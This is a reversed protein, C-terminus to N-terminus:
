GDIWRDWMPHATLASGARQHQGRVPRYEIGGRRSFPRPFRRRRPLRVSEPALGDSDPGARHGRSARQPDTITYLYWALVPLMIYLTLMQMVVVGSSGRGRRGASSAGKLRRPFPRVDLRTPPATRQHEPIPSTESRTKGEPGPRSTRSTTGAGGLVAKRDCSLWDDLLTAYVRRFDFHYKLDDADHDALSPHTASSAGTSRHGPWSCARAPVHDTGRSGNEKVRRGFESFTMLRVRGDHGSTKLTQFFAAVASALESLLNTHAPGQDAHTDFGELCRPELLADPPVARESVLFHYLKRVLFRAAAPQELM